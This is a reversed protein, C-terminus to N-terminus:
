GERARMRPPPSARVSMRSFLCGIYSGPCWPVSATPLVPVLPLTVRALPPPPATPCVPRVFNVRPLMRGSGFSGTDLLARAPLPVSELAVLVALAAVPRCAVRTDELAAPVPGALVRELVGGLGARDRVRVREDLLRVAGLRHGATGVALVDDALVAREVTPPPISTTCWVCTRFEDPPNSGVGQRHPRAHGGGLRVPGSQGSVRRSGPHGDSPHGGQRSPCDDDKEARDDARGHPVPQPGITSGPPHPM